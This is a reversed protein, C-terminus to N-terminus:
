QEAADPEDDGLYLTSAVKADLNFYQFGNGNSLILVMKPNTALNDPGSLATAANVTTIFGGNPLGQTGPAIIDTTTNVKPTSSNFLTSCYLWASCPVNNYVNNVLVYSINGLQTGNCAIKSNRKGTNALMTTCQFTAQYM